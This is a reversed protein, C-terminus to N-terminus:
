TTEPKPNVWQAVMNSNWEERLNSPQNKYNSSLRQAWWRSRSTNRQKLLSENSIFFFFSQSSKSQSAKKYVLRVWLTNIKQSLTQSCVQNYSIVVVGSLIKKNFTFKSLDVM